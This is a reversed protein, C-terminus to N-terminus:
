VANPEARDAAEFAARAQRRSQAFAVSYRVLLYASWLVATLLVAAGVGLTSLVLADLWPPADRWDLLAEMGWGGLPLLALGAAATYGVKPSDAALLPAPARRALVTMRRTLLAFLAGGVLPLTLDVGYQEVTLVHEFDFTGLRGVLLVLTLALPLCAFLRSARRRGAPDRRASRPDGTLLWVGAIVLVGPMVALGFWVAFALWDGANANTIFGAVDEGLSAWMQSTRPGPGFAGTQRWSRFVPDYVAQEAARLAWPVAVVLLLSAATLLAGLSLRGLWQPRNNKLDGADARSFGALLGCEPCPRRDDLGTLDYGCRVCPPSDAVPAELPAPVSHM